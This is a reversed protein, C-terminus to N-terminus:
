NRCNTKRQKGYVVEEVGKAILASNAGSPRRVTTSLIVLYLPPFFLNIALPLFNVRGVVYLDYPYEVAVALIVKTIVLFALSRKVRKWYKKM